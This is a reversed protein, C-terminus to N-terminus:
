RDLKLILCSEFGAVMVGSSRQNDVLVVQNVEGLLSKGALSDFFV